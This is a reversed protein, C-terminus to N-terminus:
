RSWRLYPTRNVEGMQDGALLNPHEALLGPLVDESDYAREEMTRLGGGDQVLFIKRTM